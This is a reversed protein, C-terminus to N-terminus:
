KCGVSALLAQGERLAGAYVANLKRRYVGEIQELDWLGSNHWHNVNEWDYRDLIPYLCIGEVPVGLQRAEFVERSIEAIWRARGAGFHSTETIALRRRYRKWVTALMQHFPLWRSDRPEDEWRLRGRTHEWQNSHYYNVGPIDLYRPSGGLEPAIDGRIMDWAEYQAENYQAAERALEPRDRPTLVHVVPEPFVIRARRDVSWVAEIAAISARILQRKIEQDRGEAYPYIVRRAAAWSFFSIENVPTYYPVEDSHDRVVRAAAKAFRQFHDVFQPSLLDLGDPFGYHCLNWIVQVGTDLAARLMPTFSSFDYGGGREILHWRLGDRATRIGVETLLRYDDRAQADHQVGAIMDVRDGNPNIHCASEFGAM